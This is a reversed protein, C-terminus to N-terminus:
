KKSHAEIFANIDSQRFRVMTRQKEGGGPCSWRVCPLQEREAMKYILPTSCALIAAVQKATLLKGASEDM